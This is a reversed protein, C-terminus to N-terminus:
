MGMKKKEEISGVDDILIYWDDIRVASHKVIGYVMLWLIETDVPGVGVLWGGSKAPWSM